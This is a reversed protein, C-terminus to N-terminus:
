AGGDSANSAQNALATLRQKARNSLEHDPAKILGSARQQKFLSFMARATLLLGGPLSTLYSVVKFENNSGRLTQGM